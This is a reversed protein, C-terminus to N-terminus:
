IFAVAATINDKGGALNAQEILRDCAQEPSSAESIIAAIIKDPLMSWLGDSCLLVRTGKEIPVAHCEPDEPFPFGIARSVINRAPPAITCVLDPEELCRKELDNMYTHDSTIQQLQGRLFTYGRVDGVHCTYLTSNGLYGLIFTCGMGKQEANASALRMVNDNTKRMSNILIHQIEEKNNGAKQLIGKQVIIVMSEIAVRSAVEGANHGGMGDAVLMIRQDPLIYFADENHPRVRGTDSRGFALFPTAPQHFLSKLWNLIM